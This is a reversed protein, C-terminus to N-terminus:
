AHRSKWWHDIELDVKARAGQDRTSDFREPKESQERAHNASDIVSNVATLMGGIDEGYQGVPRLVLNIGDAEVACYSTVLESTRLSELLLEDPAATLPIAIAEGIAGPVAVRRPPAAVDIKTMRM